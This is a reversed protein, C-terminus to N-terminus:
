ARQSNERELRRADGQSRSRDRESRLLPFSTIAGLDLADDLQVWALMEEPYGLESVLANMVRCGATPEVGGTAIEEALLGAYRRLVQECSPIAWGLEGLAQDFYRDREAL